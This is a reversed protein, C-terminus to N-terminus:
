YSNSWGECSHDRPPGRDINNLGNWNTTYTPWPTLLYTKFHFKWFDEQRFSCPATSEYKIYLMMLLDEVLTTWIMGRPNEIISDVTVKSRKRLHAVWPGRPGRTIILIMIMTYICNTQNFHTSDLWKPWLMKMHEGHKRTNAPLRPHSGAQPLAAGPVPWTSRARWVGRRSSWM